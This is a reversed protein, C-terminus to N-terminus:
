SFMDSPDTAAAARTRTLAVTTQIHRDEIGGAAVSRAAESRILITDLICKWNFNFVM